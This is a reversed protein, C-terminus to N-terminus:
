RPPKLTLYVAGGTPTLTGYALRLSEPLRAMMARVGVGIRGRDGAILDRTVGITVERITFSQSLDGGLFGLDDATKQVQEVRGFVASKSGLELTTELLASAGLHHLPAVASPDHVHERAGHHHVDLGWVLATSWTGGNVGRLATLVSAGYRQMGTGPDLPDHDFLYGSWASLVVRDTAAVSLRASYSDLRGGAYDPLNDGADSERANFASGEIKVRSTYLGATVVGNQDHTADEWHHALPAFPDDAASPRHTFAVPGIAPEGVAAAYAEVAVGRIIPQDYELSLQMVAPHPHQRNSIRSDQYSGGSQLLEPYGRPGDVFSELSTGLTVGIVGPGVARLAHAMEWDVLGFQRGGHITTQTDYQAFVAGHLMVSWGGIAAHFMPVRSSDPLWSTGSGPKAAALGLPLTPGSNTGMHMMDHQAALPAITPELAAPLLVALVLMRLSM